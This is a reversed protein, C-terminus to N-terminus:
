SDMLSFTFVASQEYPVNPELIISDFDPHNIADPFHQTELCVANHLLHPFDAAEKSLYNSTYVQIGPQTGCVTMKRGSEPDALTAMLPMQDQSDKKMVFCHDIGGDPGGNIQPVRDNLPSAERFDFPTGTVNIRTGTPISNEDLELYEEANVMLVHDHAKRRCGSLNWYAHNTLNVLTPSDSSAKYRMHLENFTTVLYTVEANVTGPYGEDGDPSTYKFTVGVTNETQFPEAEWVKMSWGKIGGHLHNPGNNTALTYEQGNLTFKGGAIRNAVRGVTSGYYPSKEEILALTPYQLTLEEVFGNKDPFKTSIMTAGYSIFSAEIGGGGRLDFRHVTTGEATRGYISQQIVPKTVTTLISHVQKLKATAAEATLNDSEAALKRAEELKMSPSADMM